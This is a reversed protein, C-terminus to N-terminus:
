AGTEGELIRNLVEALNGSGGQKRLGEIEERLCRRRGPELRPLCALAGATRAAVQPNLEDLRALSRCFLGYGAGDPRHFAVPNAHAFTGLVARVRNPLRWDFDPHELLEAVSEVGAHGPVAAQLAFWQDLALPEDGWQRYFAAVAEDRGHLEFNLLLRLAGQRDTLNDAQEFCRALYLGTQEPRAAALYELARYRLSRRGVSAADPQYDGPTAMREVLPWWIDDALAEGLTELLGARAAHIADPDIPEDHRDGITGEGPLALLLATQAPDEDAREAVRRLVPALFEAEEHAQEPRARLRQLAALYLRQAADWRCYGDDDHALLFTLQEPTFDYGLEVPASFGRLLSPVPHELSPFVFEQEEAELMLVTETDRNENLPLHNGEADLLALGVPILVPEKDPQGPTPPTHQKLRLHYVGDRHEDEVTVRPTGAQRYWRRFRSLDMGGAEEMCDVFDDCTVAQGDFREFYLDTGRRFAEPGLLNHQMRVLEAGKEYVTITYFNDIKVYEDPRVPHAMPGQDEPFQMSRLLAVDEIRKVAASNMDASFRSDRFVTFGEKLSLQFWDRCTVRNGSWNHFYEHAVVAEVRQYGQDTTTDPHALVCSTNFVNLGKNEMAGMNFHSVAVVMYIDLDYERGYHREDWAMAAKLSHMAHDLKPLDREAAYLRLAVRRGSSTIYEDELCALDGAVLAFLYSPKPFPDEWQIWHLEGETGMGVPNGNSLLVPFRDRDAYITTTFRCLVDPRDPFYTIRRFGEAECQTCYMGNSLYLGELATNDAPNIGVETELTFRDPVDHVVLGQEHAEYADAPLPVGDLAVEHLRLRYGDLECHRPGEPREPNRRVVLRSRVRTDADDLVFSLEASDVLFAPPRYDALRIPQPAQNDRM